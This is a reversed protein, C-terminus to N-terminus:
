NFFTKCENEREGYIRLIDDISYVEHNVEIVGMTMPIPKYGKEKFQRRLDRMYKQARRKSSFYALLDIKGIESDTWVEYLHM